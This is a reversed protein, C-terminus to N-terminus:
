SFILPSLVLTWHSMGSQVIFAMPSVASYQVVTRASLTLWDVPRMQGYHRPHQHNESSATLPPYICLTTQCLAVWVPQARLLEVDAATSKKLLPGCLEDPMDAFLAERLEMM